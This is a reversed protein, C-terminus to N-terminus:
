TQDFKSLGRYSLYGAILIEMLGELIIIIIQSFILQKYMKEYCSKTNRSKNKLPRLIVFLFLIKILYLLMFLGLTGMNVVPNHSDYQLNQMQDPINVAAQDDFNAEGFFRAPIDVQEFIDFKVVTIMYAYFQMVNGPFVTQVLVIHIILQLSNVMGLLQNLLTVIFINMLFIFVQSNLLVKATIRSANM